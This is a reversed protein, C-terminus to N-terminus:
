YAQVEAVCHWAPLTLCRKLLRCGQLLTGLLYTGVGSFCDAGSCFLARSTPDLMAEAAQVAAVGHGTPLVPCRKFLRCGQLM